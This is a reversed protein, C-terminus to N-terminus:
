QKSSIVSGFIKPRCLLGIGPDDSSWTHIKQPLKFSASCRDKSVCIKKKCIKVQLNKLHLFDFGFKM